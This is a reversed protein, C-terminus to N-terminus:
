FTLQTRLFLGEFAMMNSNNPATYLGAFSGEPGGLDVWAQFLWGASFKLWPTPSWATGIEADAVPVVRITDTEQAGNFGLPLSVQVFHTDSEGFLLSGAANAFLSFQRCRGFYREAQLGLRPGAGNFQATFVGGSFFSGNASVVSQYNQSVQAIRVGASYRFECGGCVWLIPKILDLDFLNVAVDATSAIHDGAGPTQGNIVRDSITQGDRVSDPDLIVATGAIDGFPDVAFRDTGFNGADSETHGTLRTYTFRLETDTGDFHYGAFVRFSSSYQFDFDQATVDAHSPPIDSGYAYATADSFHPRVYLYDGGFIWRGECCPGDPLSCSGCAPGVAPVIGPDGGTEMIPEVMPAAGYALGPGYNPDFSPGASQELTPAVWANPNMAPAPVSAGVLQIESAPDANASPSLLFASPGGAPTCAPPADGRTSFAPPASPFTGQAIAAGGTCWAMVAFLSALKTRLRAM